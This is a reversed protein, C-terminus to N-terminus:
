RVEAATGQFPRSRARDGRIDPSRLDVQSEFGAWLRDSVAAARPVELEGWLGMKPDDDPTMLAASEKCM